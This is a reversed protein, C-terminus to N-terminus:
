FEFLSLIAASTNSGRRGRASEGRGIAADPAADGAEDTEGGADQM